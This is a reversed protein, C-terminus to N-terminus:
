NHWDFTLLIRNIPYKKRLDSSTLADMIDKKIRSESFTVEDDFWLEIKYAVADIKLEKLLEERIIKKLESKKM